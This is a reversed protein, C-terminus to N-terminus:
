YVIYWKGIPFLLIQNSYSFCPFHSFLVHYRICKMRVKDLLQVVGIVNKQGNFIPMCLVFETQNLEDDINIEPHETAWQSVDVINFLQGTSAVMQAIQALSSTNLDNITPRTITATQSSHALDFTM